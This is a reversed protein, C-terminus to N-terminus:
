EITVLRRAPLDVVPGPLQGNPLERNRRRRHVFMQESRQDDLRKRGRSLSERVPYAAPDIQDDVSDGDTDVGFNFYGPQWPHDAGHARRRSSGRAGM